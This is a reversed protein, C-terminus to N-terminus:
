LVVIFLPIPMETAVTQRALSGYRSDVSATNGIRWQLFRFDSAFPM